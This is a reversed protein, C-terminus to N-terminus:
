IRTSNANENALRRLIKRMTDTLERGETQRNDCAEIYCCDQFTRAYAAEILLDDRTPHKRKARPRDPRNGM